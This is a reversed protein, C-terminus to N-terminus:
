PTQQDQCWYKTTTTVGRIPLSVPALGPYAQYLKEAAIVTFSAGQLKGDPPLEVVVGVSLLQEILAVITFLEGEEKEFFAHVREVAEGITGEGLPLANLKQYTNSCPM